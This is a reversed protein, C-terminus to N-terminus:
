SRRLQSCKESDIRRTRSASPHAERTAEGCVNAAEGRSRPDVALCVLLQREVELLLDVGVERTTAGWGFGPPERQRGEAAERLRRFRHTVHAPGREVGHPAVHPM